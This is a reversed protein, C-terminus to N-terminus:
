NAGLIQEATLRLDPFAPSIVLDSELKDLYAGIAANVIQNKPVNHERSTQRLRDRLETKLRFTDPSEQLM